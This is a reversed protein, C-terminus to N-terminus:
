SAAEDGFALELLAQLAAEGIDASGEDLVAADAFITVRGQGIFCRALIGDSDLSCRANPSPKLTGALKVPVPTEGVAVLWEDRRQDEDFLLELGWHRLIPSLLVVDQPRRRDGIGYHSHHTLMPDAFLLLQGGGRVWADLSVNEAPTLARPQALMLKSFGRLTDDELTDLPSLTSRRELALRVWNPKTQSQLIAGVDDAEAWYIPLTTMLGLSGLHEPNPWSVPPQQGGAIPTEPAARCGSAALVLALLSARM